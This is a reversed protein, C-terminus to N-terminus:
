TCHFSAEPLRRRSAVTQRVRLSAMRRAYSRSSFASRWRWPSSGIASSSVGIVKRSSNSQHIFSYPRLSRPSKSPKKRLRRTLWRPWREILATVGTRISPKSCDPGAHALTLKETEPLVIHIQDVSGDCDATAVVVFCRLATVGIDDRDSPQQSRIQGLRHECRAALVDEGIDLALHARALGLQ